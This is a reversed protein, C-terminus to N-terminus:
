SPISIWAGVFNATEKLLERGSTDTVSSKSGDGAFEFVVATAGVESSAKAEFTITAFDFPVQEGALPETTFAAFKAIGAENNIRSGALQTFTGEIHNLSVVELKTPDFKIAFQPGVIDEIGNPDLRVVM